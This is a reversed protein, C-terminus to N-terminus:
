SATGHSASDLIRNLEKNVDEDSIMSADRSQEKASIVKSGQLIMQLIMSRIMSGEKAARYERMLMRAVGDAGGVRRTFACIISKLDPMEADKLADAMSSVLNAQRRTFGLGDEEKDSHV